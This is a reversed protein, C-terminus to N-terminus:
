QEGTLKSAQQISPILMLSKGISKKLLPDMTTYSKLVATIKEPTDANILKGLAKKTAPGYQLESVGNIVTNWMITSANKIWALTAKLITMDTKDVAGSVKGGAAEFLNNISRLSEIQPKMATINQQIDKVFNDGIESGIDEVKRKISNIAGQGKIADKEVENLLGFKFGTLKNADIANNTKLSSVIDDVNESLINTGRGYAQRAYDWNASSDLSAKLKPFQRLYNNIGTKYKTIDHGADKLAPAMKDTIFSKLDVIEHLDETGRNIIRDFKMKSVSEAANMLDIQEVPRGGAMKNALGQILQSEEQTFSEPSFTNSSVKNRLFRYTDADLNGSLNRSVEKLEAPNYKTYADSFGKQLNQIYDENPTFKGDKGIKMGYLRGLGEESTGLPEKNIRQNAFVDEVVKSSEQNALKSTVKEIEKQAKNVMKSVSDNISEGFKPDKKIIKELVAKNKANNLLETKIAEPDAAIKGSVVDKYVKNINDTGILNKIRANKSVLGSAVNYTKGIMGTALPIAGGVTGGVVAYTLAEKPIDEMEKAQGAGSIAGLKVGTKVGEKIKGILSTAKGVPIFSGTGIGGAIELATSLNPNEKKFEEDLKRQKDRQELYGEQYNKSIDFDGTLMGGIVNGVGGGVGALEDGWGFTAGQAIAGILGRATEEPSKGTPINQQEYDYLKKEFEGTTDSALRSQKEANNYLSMLKNNIKNQIDEDSLGSDRDRKITRGVMDPNINNRLFVQMDEKSVRVTM